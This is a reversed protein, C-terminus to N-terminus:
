EFESAFNQGAARFELVSKAQRTAIVGEDAMVDSIQFVQLRKAREFLPHLMEFPEEVQVRLGDNMIQVRRIDRSLVRHREGAGRDLDAHLVMVRVDGTT